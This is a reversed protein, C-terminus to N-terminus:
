ESIVSQKQRQSKFWFFAPVGTAILCFGIGSELPSTWLTNALLFVSCILFIVPLWPYFPVRFSRHLQPERIRLVIVSATVSAYFIWSAFIVYDTLQDYSGSAALITAVVAQALIAIAPVKAKITLHALRRFFLGDRAMAFPIRAGTLISGNLAGLASIVFAVSVVAISWGGFNMEAARTAVPLADPTIKSYSALIDPFSLGYFYSLNALLYILFVVAMGLGLARPITKGPDKIEGAVMPMNNWGDYAWLAAIMAAGFPSWGPWESTTSTLHQWSGNRGVLFLGLTLALILVVKLITLFTQLKGGFAVSLCNLLSFFWVIAIAVVVKAFNSSLPFIAALFTAGGVAYAAISGPNGIWFRMWGYLFGMSDGYGEQLFAYEGGARPFLCGLEAYCLAGCFSLLGAAAFAVLVWLPSGVTQSMIATKIFVGSGIVTGIV